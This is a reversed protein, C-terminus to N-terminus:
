VLNFKLLFLDLEKETEFHFDSEVKNKQFFNIMNLFSKFVRFSYGEYNYIYFVKEHRSSTVLVTEITRSPRLYDTSIVRVTNM